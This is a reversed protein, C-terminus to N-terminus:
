KASPCGKKAAPPAVPTILMQFKSFRFSCASMSSACIEATLEKCKKALSGTSSLLPESLEKFTPTDRNKMPLQAIGKQGKHQYFKNSSVILFPSILTFHYYLEHPQEKLLNPFNFLQQQNNIPKAVPISRSCIHIKSVLSPSALNSRKLLPWLAGGVQTLYNNVNKNIMTTIIKEWIGSRHM